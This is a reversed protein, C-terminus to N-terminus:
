FKQAKMMEIAEVMQLASNQSAALALSSAIGGTLVACGQKKFMQRILKSSM